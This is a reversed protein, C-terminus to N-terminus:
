KPLSPLCPPFLSSLSHSHVARLPVTQAIIIAKVQIFSFVQQSQTKRRPFDQQSFGDLMKYRAKLTTMEGENRDM